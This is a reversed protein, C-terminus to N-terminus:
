LEETFLGLSSLCKAAKIKWQAIPFRPSAVYCYRMKADLLGEYLM